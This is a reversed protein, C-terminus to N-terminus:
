GPIEAATWSPWVGYAVASTARGTKLDFVEQRFSGGTATLVAASNPAWALGGLQQAATITPLVAILRENSGDPNMVYLGFDTEQPRRQTFALLTGDPSAALDYQEGDTTHIRSPPGGAVPARYFAGDGQNKYLIAAGDATWAPQTTNETKTAAHTIQRLNTGDVNVIFIETTEGVLARFALRQGDPSWAPLAPDTAKDTVLTAARTRTDAVFLQSVGSATRGIYAVRGGDPAIKPQQGAPILTREQGGLVLLYVTGGREYVLTGRPPAITPTPSAAPTPSPGFLIPFTSIGGSPTGRGTPNTDQTPAVPLSGHSHLAIALVLGIMGLMALGTVGGVILRRQRDNV